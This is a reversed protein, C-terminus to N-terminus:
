FLGGGKIHAYTEEGAVAFFAISWIYSPINLINQQLVVLALGLLVFGTIALYFWMDGYKEVSDLLIGIGGTFLFVMGFTLFVPYLANVKPVEKPKEVGIRIYDISAKGNVGAQYNRSQITASVTGDTNKLRGTDALIPISNNDLIKTYETWYDTKGTANLHRYLDHIITFSTVNGFFKKYNMNNPLYSISISELGTNISVAVSSHGFYFNVKSNYENIMLPYTLTNPDKMDLYLAFDANMSSNQNKDLDFSITSEAHIHDITDNIPKAKSIAYYNVYSGQYLPIQLSGDHMEYPFPSSMNVWTSNDLTQENFEERFIYSSFGASATPLLMGIIAVSMLAILLPKKNMM